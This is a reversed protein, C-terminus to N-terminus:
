RRLEPTTILRETRAKAILRDAEDLDKRGGRRMLEFVMRTLVRLKALDQDLEGARRQADVVWREFPARDVPKDAPASM